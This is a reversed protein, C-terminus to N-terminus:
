RSLSMWFDNAPFARGPSDTRNDIQRYLYVHDIRINGCEAQLSSVLAVLDRYMAPPPGSASFDGVLCVGISHENWDMGPMTVHQADTQYKWFDTAIVEASGEVAGPRIVFHCRKALGAENLSSHVIINRWKMPQLPVSTGRILADMNIPQDALRILAPTPETSVPRTEMIMLVLTGLAM